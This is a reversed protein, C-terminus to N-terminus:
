NRGRTRLLAECHERVAGRRSLKGRHLFSLAEAGGIRSLASAADIRVPEEKGPAFLTEALLIKGLSSVADPDATRLKGLAQIAERRVRPEKHALMRVLGPVTESAGIEGLIFCLNRLFYWPLDQLRAAIAPVAPDAIRILLSLLVRRMGKDPEKLLRDLLPDATRAGYRVLIDVGEEYEKVAAPGALCIEMIRPFNVAALAKSAAERRAASDGERSNSVADLVRGLLAFDKAEILAPIEPLMAPLLELVEEDKRDQLLFDVLVVIGKRRVARPDIFPELLPDVDPPPEAESGYGDAEGSLSELFDSHEEGLYSEESRDLLLQKVAEWTKRAYYRRTQHGERSWTELLPVLSGEVGRGAAIVQFARLLRNGGKGAGSVLGALLNLFEGDAYGDTLSGAVLLSFEPSSGGGELVSGDGGGDSMGEELFVLVKKQREEPLVKLKEGLHRFVRRLADLPIVAAPTEGTASPAAAPVASVAPGASGRVWRLFEPIAEPFALLEDVIRQESSEDGQASSILIRWMEEESLRGDSSPEPGAIGRSLVEKYNVPSIYIGRIGQRQFHGETVEGTKGSQLERLCRFFSALGEPTADSGFGVTAVHHRYLEETFNRVTPSRAEFFRDHYLLRDRAVGILFIEGPEMAAQASLAQHLDGTRERLFPHGPAYMGAWQYARALEGLLREVRGSVADAVGSGV